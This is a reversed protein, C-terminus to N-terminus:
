NTLTKKYPTGFIPIEFNHRLFKNYQSEFEYRFNLSNWFTQQDILLHNGRIDFFYHEIDEFNKTSFQQFTRWSLEIFTM